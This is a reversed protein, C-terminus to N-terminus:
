AVEETQPRDEAARTVVRGKEADAKEQRHRRLAARGHRSLYAGFTRQGTFRNKNLARALILDARYLRRMGDRNGATIVLPNVSADIAELLTWDEATMFDAAPPKPDPKTRTM